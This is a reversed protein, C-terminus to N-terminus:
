EGDRWLKWACYVLAAVVLAAVIYVFGQFDSM